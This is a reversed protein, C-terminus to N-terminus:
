LFLDSASALSLEIAASLNQNLDEQSLLQVNDAEQGSLKVKKSENGSVDEALRKSGHLAFSMTLLLFFISQIKM